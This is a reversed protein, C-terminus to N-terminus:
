DSSVAVSNVTQVLLRHALRSCRTSRGALCVMSTRALPLHMLSVGALGTIHRGPTLPERQSVQLRNSSSGTVSDVQESAAATSLPSAQIRLWLSRCYTVCWRRRETRGPRTTATTVIAVTINNLTRACRGRSSKSLPLFFSVKLILVPRQHHPSACAALTYVCQRQWATPLRSALSQTGPTSARAPLARQTRKSNCIQKVTAASEISSNQVDFSLGSSGVDPAMGIASRLSSWWM